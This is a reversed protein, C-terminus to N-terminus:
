TPAEPLQHFGYAALARLQRQQHGRGVHFLGLLEFVAQHEIAALQNGVPRLWSSAATVGGALQILGEGV